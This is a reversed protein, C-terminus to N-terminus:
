GLHHVGSPPRGPGDGACPGTGVADAVAYARSLDSNAHDIDANVASIASSIAAQAAAIANGAGPTGPLGASALASQDDRVTGIDKRLTAIDNATTGADNLVTTLVAYQVRGARYHSRCGCRGQDEHHHGKVRPM